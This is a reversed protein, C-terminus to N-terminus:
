GTLIHSCLLIKYFFNNTTEKLRFFQIKEMIKFAIKEINVFRGFNLKFNLM